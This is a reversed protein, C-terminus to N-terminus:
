RNQTKNPTFRWNRTWTQFYKLWIKDFEDCVNWRKFNAKALLKVVGNWVVKTNYTKQKLLWLFNTQMERIYVLLTYRHTTMRQSSFTKRHGQKQVEIMIETDDGLEEWDGHEEDEHDDIDRLDTALEDRCLPSTPASTTCERHV